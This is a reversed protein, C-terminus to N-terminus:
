GTYISCPEIIKCLGRTCIADTCAPGRGQICMACLESHVCGKGGTCSDALPISCPAIYICMGRYCAMHGCKPGYGEACTDNDGGCYKMPPPICDRSRVCSGRTNTDALRQIEAMEMQTDDAAAVDTAAVAVAMM